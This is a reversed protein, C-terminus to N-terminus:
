ISQLSIFKAVKTSSVSFPLFYRSIDSFSNILSEVWYDRSNEDERRHENKIPVGQSFFYINSFFLVITETPHLKELLLTSCLLYLNEHFPWKKTSMFDWSFKEFCSSVLLLLLLLINLTSYKLISTIQKISMKWPNPFIAASAFTKLITKIWCKSISLSNKYVEDDSGLKRM